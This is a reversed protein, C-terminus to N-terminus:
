TPTESVGGGEVSGGWAKNKKVGLFKNSVKSNGIFM